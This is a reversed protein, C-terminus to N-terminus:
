FDVIVIQRYTVGPQEWRFRRVAVNPFSSSRQDVKFHVPRESVILAFDCQIDEVGKEFETLWNEDLPQLNGWGRRYDPIADYFAEQEEGDLDPIPM